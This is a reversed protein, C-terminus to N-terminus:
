KGSNNFQQGFQQLNWGQPLMELKRQSEGSENIMTFHDSPEDKSRLRRGRYLFPFKLLFSEAGFLIDSFLVFM